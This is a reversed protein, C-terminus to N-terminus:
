YISLNLMSLIEWFNESCLVPLFSITSGLPSTGLCMLYSSSVTTMSRGNSTHVCQSPHQLQAHELTHGELCPAMNSGTTECWMQLQSAESWHSVVPSSNKRDPMVEKGQPFQKNTAKSIYWIHKAQNHSIRV